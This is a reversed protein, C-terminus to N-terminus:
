TAFRDDGKMLNLIHPILGDWAVQKNRSNALDMGLIHRWGLSGEEFNRSFYIDAKPLKVGFIHNICDSNHVTFLPVLPTELPLTTEELWERAACEGPTEGEEVSGGVGSLLGQGPSNSRKLMLAYQFTPDVAIIQTYEKM